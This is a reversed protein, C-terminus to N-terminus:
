STYGSKMAERLIEEVVKEVAEGDWVNTWDKYHNLVFFWLNEPVEEKVSWPGQMPRVLGFMQGVMKKWVSDFLARNLLVGNFSEELPKGVVGGEHWEDVLEKVQKLLADVEMELTAAYHRLRKQENRMAQLEEVFMDCLSENEHKM